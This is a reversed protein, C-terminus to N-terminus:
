RTSTGLHRLGKIIIDEANLPNPPMKPGWPRGPHLTDWESNVQNYRGSGPDHNGFGDICSNWIPQYRNIFHSELAAILPLMEDRLILIRCSFDSIDLGEGLVINKAHQSLRTRLPTGTVQAERGQRWGKPVAKGVYIPRREKPSDLSRIKSYLKHQGSYYLAYVGAGKFNSELPLRLEPSNNLFAFADEVIAGLQPHSFIHDDHM